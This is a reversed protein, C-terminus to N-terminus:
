RPRATITVRATPKGWDISADLVDRDPHKSEYFAKASELAPLSPPAKCEITEVFIWKWENM